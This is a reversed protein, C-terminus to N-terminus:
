SRGRGGSRRSRPSWAASHRNRRAPERRARGPGRCRLGSRLRPATGPAATRRRASGSPSIRSNLAHRRDGAAPRRVVHHQGAYSLPASRAGQWPVHVSQPLAPDGRHPLRDVCACGVVPWLGAILSLGGILQAAFGIALLPAPLPWGYNTALVKRESFHAFNRLGAILFFAGFIARGVIMLIAATTMSTGRARFVQCLRIAPVVHRCLQTPMAVHQVASRRRVGYDLAPAQLNKNDIIWQSCSRARATQAAPSHPKRVGSSLTSPASALPSATGCTSRGSRSRSRPSRRTM